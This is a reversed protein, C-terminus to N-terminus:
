QVIYNISSVESMTFYGYPYKEPNTQNVINGRIVAPAVQFPGLNGESVTTFVKNMYDYYRPSIGMLDINMVEGETLDDFIRVTYTYNGNVFEDDFIGYEQGHDERIFRHMYYNTEDPPDNFFAKVTMQNELFGEQTQIVEELEPVTYFKETGVYVDGKHKITLTFVENLLPIFNECVYIGKNDGELENFEFTDGDENKIYVTAGSVKPIDTNYYGTSTTLRIVQLNGNSNKQWNIFAEIVLRPEQEALNVDVVDECATLVLCICVTFISRIICKM